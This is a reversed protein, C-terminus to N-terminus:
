RKFNQLESELNDLRKETKRNKLYKDIAYTLVILFVIAKNVHPLNLGLVSSFLENLVFYYLAISMSFEFITLMMAFAIYSFIEFGSKNKLDKM